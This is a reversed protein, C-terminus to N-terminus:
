RVPPQSPSLPPGSIATLGLPPGGSSIPTVIRAPIVQGVWAGVTYVRTAEMEEHTFRHIAATLGGGLVVVVVVVVVVAVVVVVVVESATVLM